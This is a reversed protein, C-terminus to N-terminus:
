NIKKIYCENCLINKYKREPQYYTLTTKGCNACLVEYPVIGALFNFRKVNRLDPYIGPLPLNHKKYFKIEQKILRFPKKTEECEIVANEWTAYNQIKDPIDKTKAQIKETDEQWFSGKREVSEKTEQFYYHALTHNYGVLAMSYPFYKGYEGDAKMKEILKQRLTKYEEESYQKNLICFKKKKLGVCGFCNEVDVCRHLYESFRCRFSYVAYKTDYMDSCQMIEHTLECRLAGTSDSLDKDSHARFVYAGNDIKEAFFSKDLNHSSQLYNGDVNECSMQEVAKHYAENQLHIVFEKKCKEIANKSSLDFEQIKNEYEQKTYQKNNISYQKNRLNWCMFCNTCGRCDYLFYSDTCNQSNLSFHTNYNKECYINEYCHELYFCYTCDLCDKCYAIRYMFHSNEVDLMSRCSYCDKCTWTDDCYDCNVSKDDGTMHYMPVKRHLELMQDFFSRDWDIDTAVAEWADSHWTSRETIPFQSNPPFMSVITKKTICDQVKHFPGFSWDALRRQNRCSPCIKPTSVNMRVHLDQERQTIEFAKKCEECNM